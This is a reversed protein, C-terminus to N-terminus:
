EYLRQKHKIRENSYKEILKKGKTTTVGHLFFMALEYAVESIKYKSQPFIDQNFGLFASEIRNKTIVDINIEPRYLEEKIGRELNERIMRYMFQYKHDRLKKFAKPHHKELDYMILPNMAKLLEDMMDIAIFIEEVANESIGKCHLCEDASKKVEQDVVAEVMEDKDTFFQYITKKSIGLQSAIEDMTISRIGYRMYLDTAKELIRDKNEM